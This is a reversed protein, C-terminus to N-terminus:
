KPVSPLVKFFDRLCKITLLDGYGRKDAALNHGTEAHHFGNAKKDLLLQEDCGSPGYRLVLRNYYQSLDKITEEVMKFDINESKAGRGLFRRMTAVESILIDVNQTYKLFEDFTYKEYIRHPVVDFVVTPTAAPVIKKVSKAYEMALLTAQFRPVDRLGICYGSIYLVRCTMIDKHHKEIDTISFLDNANQKNNILLRIDGDDRVIIAKGTPKDVVWQFSTDIGKKKLWNTISMGATDNGVKSLLLAHYGAQKAMACINLASGGPIDDIDEWWIVGNQTLSSFKFPLNKKVIYDINVDGLGVIDYPHKM